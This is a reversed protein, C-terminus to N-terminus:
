ERKGQALGPGGGHDGPPKAAALATDLKASHGAWEEEFSGGRVADGFIPAVEACADLLLPASALHYADDIREIDRAIVRGPGGDGDLSWIEFTGDKQRVVHWPSGAPRDALLAAMAVKAWYPVADNKLWGSITSDALGLKRALKGQWGRGYLNGFRRRVAAADIAETENDLEEPDDLVSRSDDENMTEPGKRPQKMQLFISNM